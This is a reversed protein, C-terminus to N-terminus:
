LNCQVRYICTCAYAISMQADTAIIHETATYHIRAKHELQKTKIHENIAVPSVTSYPLIVTHISHLSVGEVLVGNQGSLDDEKPPLIKNGLIVTLDRFLSVFAATCPTTVGIVGM